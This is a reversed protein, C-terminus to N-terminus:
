DDYKKWLCYQVLFSFFTLLGAVISVIGLYTLNSSIADKLYQMCTVVPRGDSVNRSWYFLSSRCLGSCKFQSEFFKIFKVGTKFASEEAVAQYQKVDTKDVITSNGALFSDWCATFTNFSTSNAGDFKWALTRNHSDLTARDLNTWQTQNSNPTCPCTSSCMLQSVIGGISTDVEDIVDRIKKVIFGQNDAPAQCFANLTEIKTNSVAAIALGNVFLLLFGCLFFFGVAINCIIPFRKACLIIGCIGTLVATIAGALLMYFAMSQYNGLAKVDKSFNSTTFRISLVIMAIGLLLTLVSFIGVTVAPCKRTKCM